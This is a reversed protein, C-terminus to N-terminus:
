PADSRHRQHAADEAAQYGDAAWRLRGALDALRAGHAAAERERAALAAVWLDHLARGAAHLAGTGDAAFARAGPDVQALRSAAQTVDGAFREVRSAADVLEM